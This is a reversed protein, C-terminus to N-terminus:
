VFLWIVYCLTFVRSQKKRQSRVQFRAESSSLM